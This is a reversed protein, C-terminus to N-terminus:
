KGIHRKALDIFNSVAPNTSKAEAILNYIMTPAKGSPMKLARFVIGSMPISKLFSPLLSVGQGAAVMNMVLPMQLAEYIINPQSKIEAFAKMIRDYRQTGAYRPQAIFPEDKLDKISIKEKKALPHSATIVVDLLDKALNLRILGKDDFGDDLWILAIDLHHGSLDALQLINEAEHLVLEVRVHPYASHFKSLLLTTIPHFPASFNVGIRLHGTLGAQAQQTQTAIRMMDHLIRRAEPLLYRGAATLEVHRQTRAFLLIGLYEELAKIQQSLPPQSINLRKAARGFHLEEAVTVFYRLQRLDIANIRM